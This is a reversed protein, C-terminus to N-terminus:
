LASRATPSGGGINEMLRQRSAASARRPALAPRIFTFWRVREYESRARHHRPPVRRQGFSSHRSSGRRSTSFVGAVARSPLGDRGLMRRLSGVATWLLRFYAPDGRVSTRCQAYPLLNVGSDAPLM